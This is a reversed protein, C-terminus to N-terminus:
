ATTDEETPMESEPIERWNEPSDQIGLYVMRSYINGNTLVMGEDAELVIVQIPQTKMNSGDM